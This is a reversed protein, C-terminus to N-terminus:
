SDETKGTHLTVAVVGGAVIMVAGRLYTNVEEKIEIDYFLLSPM